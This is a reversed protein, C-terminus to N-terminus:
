ARLAAAAGLAGVPPTAHPTLEVLLEQRDRSPEALDLWIRVAGRRTDHDIRAIVPREAGEAVKERRSLGNQDSASIRRPAACQELMLEVRLPEAAVRSLDERSM